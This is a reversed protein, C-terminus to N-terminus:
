LLIVGADQCAQITQEDWVSAQVEGIHAKRGARGMATRPGWSKVDEPPTFGGQPLTKAWPSFAQVRWFARPCLGWRSM